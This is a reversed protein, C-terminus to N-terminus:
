FKRLVSWGAALSFNLKILVRFKSILGLSLSYNLFNISFLFLYLCLQLRIIQWVLLLFDISLIKYKSNLFHQLGGSLHNIYKLQIKTQCSEERKQKYPFKSLNFTLNLNDSVLFLKKASLETPWPIASNYQLINDFNNSIILTFITFHRLYHETHLCEELSLILNQFNIWKWEFMSFIESTHRTFYYFSSISQLKLINRESRKLFITLM